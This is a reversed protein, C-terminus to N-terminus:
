LVGMLQSYIVQDVVLMVGPLLQQITVYYALKLNNCRFGAIVDYNGTGQLDLNLSISFAFTPNFHFDGDGSVTLNGAYNHANGIICVGDDSFGNAVTLSQSNLDWKGTYAAAITLTKVSLTASAVANIVSTGNFVLDDTTLLAGSGSYNTSLNMDTSGSSNWTRTAM